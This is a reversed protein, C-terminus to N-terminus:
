ALLRGAERSRYIDCMHLQGSHGAADCLAEQIQFQLLLAVYYRTYPLDAPIHRKSMPDLHSETRPMPPVIGQYQLRLEWWASNM